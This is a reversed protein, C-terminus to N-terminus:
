TRDVPAKGAGSYKLHVSFHHAGPPSFAGPASSASACEPEQSDFLESFM